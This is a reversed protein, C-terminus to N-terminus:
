QEIVHLEGFKIQKTFPIYKHNGRNDPVKETTTNIIVEYIIDWEQLRKEESMKPVRTSATVCGHSVTGPHLNYGSRQEGYANIAGERDDVKNYPKNDQPDLVFFKDHSPNDNGKNELINYVGVPIPIENQRTPDGIIIKNDEVHGGSFVNQVYVGYNYEKKQFDTLKSYDFASVWKYELSPNVESVDPIIALDNQSKSFVALVELGEFELGGIPSNEAFAYTSNWPFKGALPDVSWFRGLRADYQRFEYGLVAGEGYVENDAEQGNFFYRYHPTHAGTTPLPYTATLKM